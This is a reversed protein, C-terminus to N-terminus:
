RKIKKRYDWWYKGQGDLIGNGRVAINDVKEAYILSSLNILQTGEWRMRIMPLYDDFITANNAILLTINSKLHISGTLYQGAPFYVNRVGKKSTTEIAERIASTSKQVGKLDAGYKTVNYHEECECYNLILIILLYKSFM